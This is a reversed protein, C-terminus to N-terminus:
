VTKKINEDKKKLLPTPSLPPEADDDLLVTISEEADDTCPALQSSQGLNLCTRKTPRRAQSSSAQLSGQLSYYYLEYYNRQRKQTNPTAPSNPPPTAQRLRNTALKPPM